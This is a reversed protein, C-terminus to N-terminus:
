AEGPVGGRSRAERSELGFPPEGDQALLRAAWSAEKRVLRREPVILGTLAPLGTMPFSDNPADGRLPPASSLKEFPLRTMGSRRLAPFAAPFRIDIPYMEEEAEGDDVAKLLKLEGPRGAASNEGLLRPGAVGEEIALSVLSPDYKWDFRVGLILLALLVALLFPRKLPEICFPPLPAEATVSVVAPPPALSSASVTMVLLLSRKDAIAAFSALHRSNFSPSCM